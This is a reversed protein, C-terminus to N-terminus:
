KRTMCGCAAEVREGRRRGGNADLRDYEGLRTVSRRDLGLLLVVFLLQALQEVIGLVLIRSDQDLVRFLQFLSNYLSLALMM